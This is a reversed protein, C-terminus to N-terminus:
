DYLKRFDFVDLYDVPIWKCQWRYKCWDCVDIFKRDEEETFMGDFGSWISDFNINENYDSIYKRYEEKIICFPFNELTLKRYNSTWFNEIVEPIYPLFDEYNCYINKKSDISFDQLTYPKSIQARSIPFYSLFKFLYKLNKYNYKTLVTNTDIILWRKSANILTQNVKKFAWDNKVIKDHIKDYWHISVIIWSLWKSIYKDLLALSSFILWNTHIKISEFWLKNAYEVYYLLNSDLLAEWWTFIVINKGNKIWTELLNEVELKELKKDGRKRLYKQYCFYCDINCKASLLIQLVNADWM